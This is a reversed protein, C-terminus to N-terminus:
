WVANGDVTVYFGDVVSFASLKISHVLDTENRIEFYDEYMSGSSFEGNGAHIAEVTQGSQYKRTKSASGALMATYQQVTMHINNLELTDFQHPKTMDMKSIKTVIFEEDFNLDPDVVRITGGITIEDNWNVTPDIEYLDVAGLSTTMTPQSNAYLYQAGELWLSNQSIVSDDKFTGYFPAKYEGEADWAMLYPGHQYNIFWANDAQYNAIKTKVTRADPGQIFKTTMDYDWVALKFATQWDYQNAKNMWWATPNVGGNTVEGFTKSATPQDSSSCWQLYDNASTKPNVKNWSDTPSYPQLVIAYWGPGWKTAQMPFEYWTPTTTLSMLNGYCWELPGNQPTPVGAQQLGTTTPAERATYLGVQFLPMKPWTVTQPTVRKLLLSASYVHFPAPMYFLQAAATKDNAVFFKTTASSDYSTSFPNWKNMGIGMNSPLAEGDGTWGAYIACDFGNVLPLRFYAYGGDTKLLTLEQAAPYFPPTSFSLESPSSGSGRCYVRTVVSSTDELVDIGTLNKDFKMLPTSANEKAELANNIVAPPTAGVTDKLKGSRVRVPTKLTLPKSKSTIQPKAQPIVASTTGIGKPTPISDPMPLLYLTRETPNSPNFLVQMYSPPLQNIINGVAAFINENSVDIDIFQDLSPDVYAASILGDHWLEVCLDDVIDSVLRQTVSYDQTYYRTLYHEPGDSSILLNAGSGSGLRASGGTMSTAGYDKYREKQVIVFVQKLKMDRGYWWIELDSPTNIIYQAAQSELPLNFAINDATGLQRTLYPQMRDPLQQVLDYGGSTNRQRLEFTYDPVYDM